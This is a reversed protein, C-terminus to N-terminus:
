IRIQAHPRTFNQFHFLQWQPARGDTSFATIRSPLKSITITPGLRLDPTCLDRECSDAVLSVCSTVRRRVPERTELKVYATALTYTMSFLLCLLICRRLYVLTPVTHRELQSCSLPTIWLLEVWFWYIPHGHRLKLALQREGGDQPYLEWLHKESHYRQFVSQQCSLVIVRRGKVGCM